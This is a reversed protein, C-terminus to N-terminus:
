IRRSTPVMAFEVSALEFDEGDANYLEFELWNVRLGKGTDFRQVQLAEDYSRAAYTYEQGEGMVKLFLRGEGSVGVYANTIRKLASTGFGQKGFSVMSRIPAGADTQGDLQYIGDEKCGFYAGGIKAYSNFDFGEYRTFGGTEANMAWVDALAFAPQAVDLWVLSIATAGAITQSALVSAALANSIATVAVRADAEATSVASASSLALAVILSFSTPVVSAAGAYDLAYVYRYDPSGASEVTLAPLSFDGGGGPPLPPNGGVAFLAPLSYSAFGEPQVLNFEATWYENAWKSLLIAGQSTPLFRVAETTAPSAIAVWTNGEDESYSSYTLLLDQALFAGASHQVGVSGATFGWGIDGTWSAGADTSRIVVGNSGGILVTQGSRAISWLDSATTPTRTAWTQGQDSSVLVRGSPGAAIVSTGSIDLYLVPSAYVNNWNQGGDVSRHIGAAGAILIFGDGAAANELASEPHPTNQTWVQGDTTRFGYGGTGVALIFVGDDVLHRIYTNGFSASTSVAWTVGDDLSYVGQTTNSLTRAVGVVIGQRALLATAPYVQSLPWTRQQLTAGHDDSTFVAGNFAADWAALILRGSATECAAPSWDEGASWEWGETIARQTWNIM